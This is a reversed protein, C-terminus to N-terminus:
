KEGEETPDEKECELYDDEVLLGLVEKKLDNLWVEVVYYPFYGSKDAALRKDQEKNLKNFMDEDFIEGIKQAVKGLEELMEKPLKYFPCAQCFADGFEKLTKDHTKAKEKLTKELSM